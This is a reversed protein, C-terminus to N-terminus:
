KLKASQAQRSSTLFSLAVFGLGSMGISLLQGMTLWQFAVFGLQVDPQRTFEVSFRVVGYFILFLAAIKGDSLVHRSLLWLAFLLMPGELIAEYLQSPHRAVTDGPFIIGWPLSTPRGVLEANIFNAIRGFFLGIPAVFAVSDAIHLLPASQRRAYVILAIAVGILGGHFSMGGHWIALPEYWPEPTGDARHYFIWWGLRGGLMVGAVIWSLLDSIDAKSLKLRGSRVRQKLALYGLLFGLLYAVGYWRVALPGIRFLVPDIVPFGLAAPLLSM